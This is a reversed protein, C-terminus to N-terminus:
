AVGTAEARNRVDHLIDVIITLDPGSFVMDPGHPARDTYPSEFLRSPAMVGNSTLEDVMLQIFRMQDVSYRSGDLFQRFTEAVAERDLGVLSRIFVGLGGPEDSARQIDPEEGGAALLMRELSELDAATLQKNRRLKQLAVHDEHKRLYATAKARFRKM